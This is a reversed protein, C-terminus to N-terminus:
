WVFYILLVSVSNVNCLAVRVIICKMFVAIYLTDMIHLVFELVEHVQPNKKSKEPM